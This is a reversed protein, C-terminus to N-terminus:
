NTRSLLFSRWRLYQADLSFENEVINRGTQGFRERRGSDVLLAEVADKLAASTAETTLLANQGHRAIDSVGGANVAVIPIGCASAEMMTQGFAEEISASIFLDTASYIIPMMREDQIIGLGHIDKLEDSQYGFAVARVGRGRILQSLVEMLITGGKRPEKIHVAGALLVLGDEPLHLLRRALSQDIPSFLRHDLGLHVVEVKALGAFGQHAIHYTWSSNTALPIALPGTFVERRLKWAGAIKDPTLPPYVDATPCMEDCGTLYSQCDGLYACRGTIWHCDHLYATVFVGKDRLTTLISLPWGAWHLNGTIVVDPDFELTKRTVESAIREEDLGNNIHVHLLTHVGLWNTGFEHGVPNPVIPDHTNWCVVAVRHGHLLFSQVQRRMGIGAGGTFGFDNIFVVTLPNGNQLKSHVEHRDAM